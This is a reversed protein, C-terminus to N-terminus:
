DLFWQYISDTTIAKATKSTGFLLNEFPVKQSAPLKKM